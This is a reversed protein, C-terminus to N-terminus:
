LEDAPELLRHGAPVRDSPLRRALEPLVVRRCRARRNAHLGLLERHRQPETSLAGGEFRGAVPLAQVGNTVDAAKRLAAVWEDGSLLKTTRASKIAGGVGVALAVATAAEDDLAEFLLDVTSSSGVWLRSAPTIPRRWGTRLTGCRGLSRSRRTPWSTCTSRCPFGGRSSRRPTCRALHPSGRM